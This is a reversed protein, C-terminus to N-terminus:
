LTLDGCSVYTKLDNASKHVNIAYHGKKLEAVTLGPVHTFSKGKVVSTLPKWPAPDLKACTGKHIHAPESGGSPESKLNITVNAGGPVDVASANGAQGSSNQQGMNIQLSHGAIANHAVHLPNMQKVQQSGSNGSQGANNGANTNNNGGGGGCAALAILVLAACATKAINM